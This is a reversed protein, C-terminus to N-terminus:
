RRLPDEEGRFTEGLRSEFRYLGAHLQYASGADHSNILCIEPMCDGKAIAQQGERQFRVIHKQFGMRGEVRVRQEEAHVPAWGAQRMSSIVEATPLFTYRSSVGQMAQGAYISPAALRLQEDTIESRVKSYNSSFM